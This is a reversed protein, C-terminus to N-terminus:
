AEHLWDRNTPQPHDTDDAWFTELVPADQPIEFRDNIPICLGLKGRERILRVFDHISGLREDTAVGFLNDRNWREPSSLHNDSGASMALGYEKAYRLAAADSFAEQSANAVEVGDAFDLGLSIRTIYGRTRFPHAQVVCGGYRHVQELQERRTWQEVEPHELLWKKDLGYVLYEDWEFRSEWGFFVDLGIKQGEALADEYGSCFMEVRERWPLDKPVCTNGSFFHDTIMIGQYGMEKYFRAHESGKSRGCLSAQCTHLHTEYRYPM